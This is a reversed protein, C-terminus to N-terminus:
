ILGWWLLMAVAGATAGRVAFRRARSVLSAGNDNAAPPMYIRALRYRRARV